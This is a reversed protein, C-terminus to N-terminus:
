RKSSKKKKNKKKVEKKQVKQKNKRGEAGFILGFVDDLHNVFHFRLKEKAEDPVKELDRRNLSPLIVDKVGYRVAALVKERIGGVPLIKGRLTIEGTMAIDQRVPKESLASVIAVCMAVGASPGDKPIAGEPVHIHLGYKFKKKEIGFRKANVQAYTLAAKASEKMVDGLSGTLSLGSETPIVAVEVKLIDGGTPTWALGTVVGIETGRVDEHESYIPPGLIEEVDQTSVSILGNKVNIEGLLIKKAIKRFLSEIKRSLERVGAEHTYERILKYIVDDSLEVKFKGDIGTTELAKRIFYKKAIHMKDIDTYGPIHIIEMRDLLPEPINEMVNATAIFFVRSLDFPVSIYHDIFSNNQEPDLVELLASAPDGRFDFSLKDIEDLMFVPNRSGAQKIGTIIRGPMAGIYTRRHGRIEAEDRVGGLSVRVFKRGLSRAISKGLSTKGVGPPGVLCLIAGKPIEGKMSAVSLFELIREKVDDLNWHDEDLIEKARKIDLNDKTEENWPLSLVEDIWTRIVTYEPSEHPISSLREIQKLVEKKAQEPLKEAKEKLEDIESKVGELEELEKRLEKIQEQLIRIRQAKDISEHVRKAVQEQIRLVERERMLYSVVKRLRETQDLEEILEQAEQPRLPLNGAIVDALKGPVDISRLFAIVEPPPKMPLSSLYEAFLGLAERMLAEAEPNFIVPRKDEFVKVRVSFPPANRVFEHIKGRFMGSLLVRFVGDPGSGARVVFCVTGFERIADKPSKPKEKLLSAFVFRHSSIAEEVAKISDPDTLSVPMVSMPFVVVFLPLVPIPIDESFKPIEVPLPSLPTGMVGASGENADSVKEESSEEGGQEEHEKKHGKVQEEHEKGQGKSEEAM